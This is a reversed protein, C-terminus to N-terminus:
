ESCKQMHVACDRKFKRCECRMASHAEYNDEASPPILIGDHEYDETGVCIRWRQPEIVGLHKYMYMLSSWSKPANFGGLDGDWDALLSALSAGLPVNQLDINRGTLCAPFGKFLEELIEDQSDTSVGHKDLRSQLYLVRSVVAEYGSMQPLRPANM